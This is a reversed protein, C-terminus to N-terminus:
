TEMYINRRTADQVSRQTESLPCLIDFIPSWLSPARESPTDQKRIMWSKKHM